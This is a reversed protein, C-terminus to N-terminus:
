HSGTRAPVPPPMESASFRPVMDDRMALEYLTAPVSLVDNLLAPSGPM